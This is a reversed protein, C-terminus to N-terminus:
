SNLFRSKLFETFLAMEGQFEKIKDLVYQVELKEKLNKERDLRIATNQLRFGGFMGIPVMELRVDDSVEREKNFDNLLFQLKERQLNNERRWLEQKEKDEKWNEPAQAYIEIYPPAYGTNETHGACSSSTPFDMARLLAITEKIEQDIGRGLKDVIHEVEFRKAELKREKELRKELKLNNNIGEM